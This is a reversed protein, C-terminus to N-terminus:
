DGYCYSDFTTSSWPQMWLRSRSHCHLGGAAETELERNVEKEWQFYFQDLQQSISIKFCHNSTNLGSEISHIERFEDDMLMAELAEIGMDQEKGYAWRLEAMARGVGVYGNFWNGVYGGFWPM